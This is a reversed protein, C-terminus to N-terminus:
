HDGFLWGMIESDHAFAQGGAHQDSYGRESFYEGERVDLVLIRNIEEKTLGQAKYIDYLENYANIMPEAGYYSDNEGIVLYVPTKAAALTQIDGDWQSSTELYATYLGPSKGMVISGTEGGGSM